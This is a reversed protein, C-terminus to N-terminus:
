IYKESVIESAWLQLRYPNSQLHKTSTFLCPTLHFPFRCRESLEAIVQAKTKSRIYSEIKWFIRYNYILM